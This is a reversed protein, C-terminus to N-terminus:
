SVREADKLYAAAEEVIDILEQQSHIGLKKYVNHIHTKATHPSIVFLTSIYVADRGKALLELVERERPSLGYQTSVLECQRHWRGGTVRPHADPKEEGPVGSGETGDDVNGGIDLLAGSTVMLILLLIASASSLIASDLVILGSMISVAVWGGFIGLTNALRGIGFTATAPLDHLASLRLLITISLIDFLRFGVIVLSGAIAFHDEILPTLLFGCAIIPLAVRIIANTKSANPALSVALSLLTGLCLALARLGFPISASSDTYTFAQMTGFALGYAAILLIVKGFKAVARVPVAPIEDMGSRADVPSSKQAAHLSLGCLAPLTAVVAISVPGHLASTVLLIPVSAISALCIAIISRRLGLYRYLDLWGVLLLADAVGIPIWAALGLMSTATGSAEGWALLVVGIPGLVVSARVAGSMFRSPAMRRAFLVIATLAVARVVYESTSPSFASGAIGNMGSMDSILLVWIWAWYLSFGLLRVPLARFSGAGDEGRMDDALRKLVFAPAGKNM